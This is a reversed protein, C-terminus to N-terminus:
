VPAGRARLRRRIREITQLPHRLIDDASVYIVTWGQDEIRERRTIDRRFREKERHVDGQYEIGVKWEPFALDLMAVFGGAGDVLTFNLLPEPLGAQVILLRTLSEMRSLPGYRVLLFAESLRRVGRRGARAEVARELDSLTALPPVASLPEDGTVLFDGAAVLDETRLLTGLECWCDVPSSVRLGTRTEVVTSQGTHHGIVGRARPFGVAQDASVHLSTANAVGLPLPIGHILAATTHSFHQSEPMRLAYARILAQVSEPHEAPTRVGHFPRQLDPCSLRRSSVGTRTAERSAFARGRLHEPLDRPRRVTVADAVWVASRTM